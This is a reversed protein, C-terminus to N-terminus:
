GGTELNHQIQRLLDEPNLPKQFWRDIGGAGQPLGFEEAPHGSVGFIRLGSLALDQRIVRVTTPGDCRPLLMDLLVVDPCDHAHLYDLADAGDGATDVEIGALRLFGALLERENRDDEVLLAKRPRSQPRTAAAAEVQGRLTQLEGNIRDLTATLDALQGAEAQRRLLALDVSAANLRNRLVPNLEGPSAANGPGAMPLVEGARRLVEERYVKVEEPAHIGLRVVGPKIALIEVATQVGPFILRENVRRTLVLM